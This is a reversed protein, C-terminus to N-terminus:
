NSYMISPVPDRRQGRINRFCSELSWSPYREKPPFTLVLLISPTGIFLDIHNKTLIEMVFLIIIDVNSIM